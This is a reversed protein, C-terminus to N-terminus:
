VPLLSYLMFFSDLEAIISDTSEAYYECSPILESTMLISNSHICIHLGDIADGVQNLCEFRIHIFEDNSSVYFPISHDIFYDSVLKFASKLTFM